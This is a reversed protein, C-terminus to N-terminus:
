KGFDEGIKMDKVLDEMKSTIGGNSIELQNPAASYGVPSVFTSAPIVSRKASFSAFMIREEGTSLKHVCGLPIGGYNPTGFFSNLFNLAGIPLDVKESFYYNSEILNVRWAGKPNSLIPVLNREPAGSKESVTIMRSPLGAYIKATEPLNPPAGVKVPLGKRDRYKALTECYQKHSKTNFWVLDWTPPKSLVNVGLVPFTVKIGKADVYMTERGLQDQRELVWGKHADDAALAGSPGSLWILVTLIRIVCKRM